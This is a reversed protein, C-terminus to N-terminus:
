VTETANWVLEARELAATVDLPNACRRGDTVVHVFEALIQPALAFRDGARSFQDLLRRSDAHRSHSALETAVLFSTDIGHIM